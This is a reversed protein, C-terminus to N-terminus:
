FNVASNSTQLTHGTTNKILELYKDMVLKECKSREYFWKSTLRTKPKYRLQYTSIVNANPKDRPVPVAYEFDYVQDAVYESVEGSLKSMAGYTAHKATTGLEGDLHHVIEGDESDSDFLYPILTILGVDRLLQLRSFILHAANKGEPYDLDEHVKLIGGRRTWCKDPDFGYLDYLGYQGIKKRTCTEWYVYRPLGSEEVLNQEGYMDFLLRLVMVEQTGRVRELPPIEGAVGQVLGSPLWVISDSDLKGKHKEKVQYRPKDRPKTGGKTQLIIEYQKLLEIAKKARGRSISTYKEVANVSWATTTNSKETGNCLVLYAVAANMGLDCAAYFRAREVAFFGNQNAM